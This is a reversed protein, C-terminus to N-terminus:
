AYFDPAKDKTGILGTSQYHIDVLHIFPDPIGASSVTIDNADVEFTMEIVGDPELLSTNIKLGSPTSDSYQVETLMHRYQVTSASGVFTGVAPSDFADQDHGKAYISSVKFTVTGGTVLTGTHSWHIHLFIDTGKVYDHPLHFSMFAEDDAAFQWSQVAGNYSVLAPKTAGTNNSFQDGIIDAWGFTPTSIDVKIGATSAKPLVLFGSVSLDYAMSVNGTDHDMVIINDKVIGGADNYAAFTTRDDASRLGSARRNVMGGSDVLILEGQTTGEILVRGRLVGPVVEIGENNASVSLITTVSNGGVSLLTDPTAVQIGMKGVTIILNNTPITVATGSVQLEETANVQLSVTQGSAADLTIGRATTVELWNATGLAAGVSGVLKDGDSNDIGLTYIQVGLVSWESYPDGASSGGVQMFVRASSATDTDDSNNVVLHVLSGVSSLTVSLSDSDVVLVGGVNIQSGGGQTLASDGLTVGGAGWLPITGNTGSGTLGSTVSLVGSTYTIGAGAIASDIAQHRLLGATTTLVTSGSGATILGGITLAGTTIVLNNNPITVTTVSVILETGDGITLELVQGSASNLKTAGSNNQFLARSGATFHDFHSINIDDGAISGIKTRGLITTGDVNSNVTLTGTTTLNENSFSIAGSASTIVGGGVELNGALINVAGLTVRFENSPINVLTGEVTLESTDNISLAVSRTSPANVRTHGLDSQEVAFDGATFFDFHAFAAVDDNTATSGIKARGLITTGLVDSNVTLTGAVTILTSSQTMISDGLTFGDPTWLPITDQTGSGTLLVGINGLTTADTWGIASGSVPAPLELDLSTLDVGRDMRVSRCRDRGLDELLQLFHDFENNISQPILDGPNTFTTKRVPSSQHREMTIIDGVEAATGLTCTGATRDVVFKGAGAGQTVEAGPTGASVDELWLLVDADTVLTADWVLTFVTQGASATVVTRGELACLAM